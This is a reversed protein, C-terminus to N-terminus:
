EEILVSMGPQVREFLEVLDANRMRVCGHSRPVGMPESDPTGHIYIYRRQTDVDGGRNFGKERGCLWLIRSLIWDREPYRAALEPSYVEGTWRRAIFVAGEPRNGGICARIYHQGRPTCGSGNAEGAGALATSVTYCATVADGDMLKLAQQSLSVRLQCESM